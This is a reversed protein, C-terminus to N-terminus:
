SAKMSAQSEMTRTASNERCSPMRVTLGTVVVRSPKDITQVGDTIGNKKSLSRPGEVVELLSGPWAMRAASYCRRHSGRPYLRCQGKKEDNKNFSENWHTVTAIVDDQDSASAPGCALTAAAVAAAVVVLVGRM